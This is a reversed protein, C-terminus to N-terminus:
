SVRLAAHSGQGICGIRRNFFYIHPQLLGLPASTNAGNGCRDAWPRPRLQLQRIATVDVEIVMRADLVGASIMM